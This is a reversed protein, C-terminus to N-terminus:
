RSFLLFTSEGPLVADGFGLLVYDDVGQCVDSRGTIAVISVKFVLPMLEGSSGASGTAVAEMISDGPAAISRRARLLVEQTHNLRSSVASQTGLAGM